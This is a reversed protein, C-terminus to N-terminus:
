TSYHKGARYFLILGILIGALAAIQDVKVGQLIFSDLRFRETFFRGMSYLIMYVVLLIGPKKASLHRKALTIMVWFVLFNWLAEYLFAPHFFRQELYEAPRRSASVYMKWPLNTPSGFAEENFFNGFRGICQALPASVAALDLLRAASLFKRRAFIFVGLVAGAIGGYISLGGKWIQLIELPDQRFHPWSFIVFYLRAGLFGFVVLWPLLEEVYSASLGARDAFNAAVLFAALIGAALLLGYYHVTFGAVEFSAPVAIDGAFAPIFYFWAALVLLGLAILTLPVLLVRM